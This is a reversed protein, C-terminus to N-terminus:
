AAGMGSAGQTSSSNRSWRGSGTTAWSLAMALSSIQAGAIMSPIVRGARSSGSPRSRERRQRATTTAATAPLAM